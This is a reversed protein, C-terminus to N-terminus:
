DVRAGALLRLLGGRTTFVLALLGAGLIAEWHETFGVLVEQFILFAAAGFIAGYTSALGGLIAMIMFEGSQFWSLMHPGVFRAHNAMLVGALGTGGASLAFAALLYLNTRYGLFKMRRENQKCGALVIGLRSTVIVRAIGVTALLFAFSVYYFVVPHTIDFGALRQRANMRLGEDGGYGPLSIFVFYLMESFALTIMIFHFGRTRLALAGIGLGFLCSVFVAIPWSVAAETGIFHRLSGEPAGASYLALIAVTFGGLGFFAAHGFSALGAYGLVLDLSIVAISVIVIRTAVTVWFPEGGLKALLPIAALLGMLAWPIVRARSVTM